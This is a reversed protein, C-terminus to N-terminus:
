GKNSAERSIQQTEAGSFGGSYGWICVTGGEYMYVGIGARELARLESIDKTSIGRYLEHDRPEHTHIYNSFFFLSFFSFLFYDGRPPIFIWLEIVKRLIRKRKEHM